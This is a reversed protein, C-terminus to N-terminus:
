KENKSDGNEEPWNITGDALNVDYSGYEKVLMDQLKRVTMQHEGLGHIINHKQAEMQGIRFQMSNIQDVVERLKSLHDESIKEARPKLEIEKEKKAM